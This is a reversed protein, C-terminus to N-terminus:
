DNNGGKRYEDGYFHALLAAMDDGCEKAFAEYDRKPIDFNCQYKYQYDTYPLTVPTKSVSNFDTNSYVIQPKRLIDGGSWYYKGFIKNNGKTIYKTVYYAFNTCDTIQIATSFGYKWAPVNYVTHKIIANRAKATELKIPKPYGEVLVTGSDTMEFCDNILAHCHIGGKEHYEPILLYKLGKRKVQNELWHRVKKKVFDPNKFDYESGDFTITLFWTFNNLRAIDFCKDKARKTSDNRERKAGCEKLFESYSVFKQSQAKRNERITELEEQTYEGVENFFDETEKKDKEIEDAYKEFEVPDKFIKRSCYVTSISGDPFIKTKTNKYLKDYIDSKM